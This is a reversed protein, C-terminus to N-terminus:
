QGCSVVVFVIVIFFNSINHSNGFHLEAGYLLFISNPFPVLLCAGHLTVVSRRSTFFIVTDAFCLPLLCARDGEQGERGGAIHGKAQQGTGKEGQGRDPQVCDADSLFQDQATTCIHQGLLRRPAVAGVAVLTSGLESDCRAFMVPLVWGWDGALSIPPRQLNSRGKGMILWSGALTQYEGPFFRVMPGQGCRSVYPPWHVSLRTAKRHSAPTWRGLCGTLGRM